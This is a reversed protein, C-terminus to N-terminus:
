QCAARAPVFNRTFHTAQDVEMLLQEIRIHPMNADIAKQLRSDVSFKVAEDRKMKAEFGM